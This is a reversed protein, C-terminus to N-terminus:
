GAESSEGWKIGPYMDSLLRRVYSTSKGIQNAIIPAAAEKTMVGRLGDAAKSARARTASGILKRGQAGRYVNTDRVDDLALLYGHAMQAAMEARYFFDPWDTVSWSPDKGTQAGEAFDLMAALLTLLGVARAKIGSSRAEIQLTPETPPFLSRLTESPKLVGHSRALSVLFGDSWNRLAM